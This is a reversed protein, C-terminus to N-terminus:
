GIEEKQYAKLEENAINKMAEMMECLYLPIGEMKGTEAMAIAGCSHCFSRNSCSDCVGSLHIAESKQVLEKWAEKFKQNRVDVCPENLMGCPTLKGDWTIWFVSKGARCQMTGDLPDICHEELGPPAAIGQVIKKLFEIYHEEGHQLHYQKLSYFAAEQPTFRENEGICNKDKRIPPFMYTVAELVLNRDKSFAVISELDHKNYPTLSCNLKLPIGAKRIMEINKCVKEYMGEIQCLERYTKESAGYLTLNIRTPPYKKLREVMKEDLLSGNTNISILFGMKALEEYLKWFDPWLFPEGGTLLLYLMGQERLERALKLWEECTMQTGNMEAVEQPTKRIYCMKCNFNCMPTLEFTGSLPSKNKTAKQFMYQTLATETRIDKNM